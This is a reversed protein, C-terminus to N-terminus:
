LFRYAIIIEQLFAKKRVRYILVRIDGFSNKSVSTSAAVSFILQLFDVGVTYRGGGVSYCSDWSTIAIYALMM